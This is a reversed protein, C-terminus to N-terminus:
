EHLEGPSWDFAALNNKNSQILTLFEDRAITICGLSELHPNQLQCDILEVDKSKLWKVLANFAVKSANKEKSFMSEGCFINNVFVGYLGGVLEDERWVEVSHAYGKKHMNKYAAVMECTIWTGNDKRPISSCAEIVADFALDTTVKLANKRIFKVLSKSPKYQHIFLVGRPNPSWWLIPEGESFWPFIGNQYAIILREVSLDGGFALLGNPELLADNPPPFQNSTDLKHLSIM